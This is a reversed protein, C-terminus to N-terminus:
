ISQGMQRKFHFGFYLHETSSWLGHADGGDTLALM